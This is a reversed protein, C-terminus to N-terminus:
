NMRSLRFAAMELNNRVLLIDGALVPHNWTKGRIAPFKALETFKKPNADVLALGGKETLVILVDQDPLLLLWGRYPYGRWKAKGDTLDLCGIRPGDFGYAYGKHIIFDNFNVKMEASRWLEKVNWKEESFSVRVRSLGKTEGALLLDGEEIVAPQLIRNGIQWDYRWLTKGAQPDVSIACSDSMLIIQPVGDIIIQHPSSYSSGGDSGSWRLKGKAADYSALKGSLSVIVADNIVLPSGTFGWNLVKVGNEGAADRSWIVSGDSAKLVNLIGTAGLTYVNDGALTPTSRPGAGAHSDYFRAKDRHKWVPKGNGLNYCSVIEYEGLQEQTYFLNGNVAFSSCGPGIPRRWIEEPQAVSWDTRIQLGHIISNRDPGRFGPWYAGTDTVAM